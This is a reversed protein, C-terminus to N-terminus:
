SAFVLEARREVASATRERLDRRTPIYEDASKLYLDPMPDEIQAELGRSDLFREIEDDVKDANRLKTMTMKKYSQRNYNSILIGRDKEKDVYIKRYRKGPKKVEELPKWKGRTLKEFKPMKAKLKFKRIGRKIADAVNAIGSAVYHQELLLRIFFLTPSESKGKLDKPKIAASLYLGEGGLEKLRRLVSRGM